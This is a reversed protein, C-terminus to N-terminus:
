RTRRVACWSCPAFSLLGRCCRGVRRGCRLAQQDAMAGMLTEGYYDQSLHEHLLAHVFWFAVSEEMFLLAWGFLM